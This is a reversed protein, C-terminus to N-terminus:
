VMSLATLISMQKELFEGAQRNLESLNSEEGVLVQGDKSLSQNQAALLRWVFDALEGPTKRGQRMGLIFLQSIRPVTIAGGIVPSVMFNIDASGQAKYTVFSNIGDTHKKAARIVEEEQALSVISAGVLVIAAELLRAFPLRDKVAQEVEGLTMPKGSSLANLIPRYVDESLTAEGMTAKITLSIDAAPKSLVLRIKRAELLQEIKSLRRAGKVWYDRRFRQNTILDRVTEKFMPDQVAALFEQQAPTMNLADVHDFYHASCAYDLKAPELWRAMDAFHMPDWNRNFYEHAVYHPSQSKLQNLREVALPNARAYAPDVAMLKSAFEVAANLRNVIGDGPAGMLQNHQSLLHQMPLMGTWGPYTNYSVYVVGGVRLKRRIFEVIVARNEDSIWSWIGHLGIFDFEPVDENGLFEAFSQDLLTVKTGAAAAMERAFGAQAPNFDNAWWSVGSAAAHFNVSLGQGFGLECATEVKPFAIGANIFPLAVRLPSLETYYGYTYGVDTLYGATWDTM